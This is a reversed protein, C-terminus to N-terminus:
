VLGEGQGAESGEQRLVEGWKGQDKSLVQAEDDLALERFHGQSM